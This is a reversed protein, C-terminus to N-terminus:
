CVCVPVTRATNAQFSRGCQMGVVVSRMDKQGEQPPRNVAENAERTCSDRQFGITGKSEVQCEFPARQVDLPMFSRRTCRRFDRERPADDRDHAAVPGRGRFLFVHCSSYRLEQFPQM